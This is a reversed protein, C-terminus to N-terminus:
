QRVAEAPAEGLPARVAEAFDRVGAPAADGLASLADTDYLSTFFTRDFFGLRM